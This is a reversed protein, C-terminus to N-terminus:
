SAALEFFFNAEPMGDVAVLSLSCLVFGTWLKGGDFFGRGSLRVRLGAVALLPEEVGGRFSLADVKCSVDVRRGGILALELLLSPEGSLLWAEESFGTTTWLAWLDALRFNLDSEASLLSKEEPCGTRADLGGL